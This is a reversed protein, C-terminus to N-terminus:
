RIMFSYLECAVSRKGSIRFSCGSKRYLQVKCQHYACYVKVSCDFGENWARMLTGGCLSIVQIAGYKLLSRISFWCFVFPFWYAIARRTFITVPELFMYSTKFNKYAGLRLCAYVSNLCKKKKETDTLDCALNTVIKAAHGLNFLMEWGVRIIYPASKKNKKARGKKLYGLTM